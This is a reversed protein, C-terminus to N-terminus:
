LWLKGISSTARGFSTLSAPSPFRRRGDPTRWGEPVKIARDLLAIAKAAASEIDRRIQGMYPAMLGRVVLAGHEKYIAAAQNADLRDAFVELDNVTATM